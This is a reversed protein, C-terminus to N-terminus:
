RDITAAGRTILADGLVDIMQKIEREDLVAFLHPKQDFYEADKTMESIEWWAEDTSCRSDTKLFGVKTGNFVDFDIDDGEGIPISPLVCETFGFGSEGEYGSKDIVRLCQLEDKCNYEFFVTGDPENALEDITIIKM